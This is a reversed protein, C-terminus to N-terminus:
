NEREIRKLEKKLKAKQIELKLEEIEKQGKNLKKHRLNRIMSPILPELREEMKSNRLDGDQKKNLNHNTDM